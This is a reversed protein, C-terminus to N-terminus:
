SLVFFDVCRIPGTGRNTTKAASCVLHYSASDYFKLYSPAGLFPKLTEYVSLEVAALVSARAVTPGVRFIGFFM